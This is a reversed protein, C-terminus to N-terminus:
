MWAWLYGWLAVIEKVGRGVGRGEVRKDYFGGGAGPEWSLNLRDVM